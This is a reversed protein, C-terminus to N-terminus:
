RWRRRRWRMKPKGPNPTSEPIWDLVKREVGESNKM